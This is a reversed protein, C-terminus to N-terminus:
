MFVQNLEGPYCDVLPLDSFQKIVQIVERNPQAKLRHQLIMLTSDIGQHLDAKKREAEDLRSFNRLSLVIERIRSAGEQMSRLLKPFDYQIFDLEIAEIEDQIEASPTPYHKQYLSILDILDATYELAYFANGYIFSTPNNIEHAVGAVLQGLSAMKE